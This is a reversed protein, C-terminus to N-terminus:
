AAREEALHLIDFVKVEDFDKGFVAPLALPSVIGMAAHYLANEFATKGQMDPKDFAARRSLRWAREAGKRDRKLLCDLFEESPRTIIEFAGIRGKEGNGPISGIACTPCGTGSACYMKSTDLRWKTFLLSLDKQTMVSQAPVKCDPCLTPVLTQAMSLVFNEEDALVEPEMQLRDNMLRFLQGIASNGHLTVALLHGTLVADTALEGSTKDRIEGIMLVDPDMRMQTLFASLFQLKVKEPSDDTNRQVSHHAVLPITNESPDEVAMLAKWERDPIAMMMRQLTTTKGSGTSGGVLIFGKERRLAPMIQQEIQERTFGSDQLTHHAIANAGGDALRIVVKAGGTIPQTQLRGNVVTTGNHFRTITSIPRDMTWDSNSNTGPISLSQYAAAFAARLVDTDFGRWQRLRGDIRLRVVSKADVDLVAHIDSAGLEFAASVLDRYLQVNVADSEVRAGLQALKREGQARVIAIVEKTTTKESEVSLKQVALTSLLAGHGGSGFFAPTGLVLVSRMELDLVVCESSKVLDTLINRWPPLDKDSTIEVTDPDHHLQAIVDQLGQHVEVFGKDGGQVNAASRQGVQHARRLAVHQSPAAQKLHAATMLSDLVSKFM